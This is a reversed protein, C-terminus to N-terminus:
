SIGVGIVINSYVFGVWVGVGIVLVVLFVKMYFKM